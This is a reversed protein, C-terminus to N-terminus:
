AQLPRYEELLFFKWHLNLGREPRFAPIFSIFGLGVLALPIGFILPVLADFNSAFMM